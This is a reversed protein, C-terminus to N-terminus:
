RPFPGIRALHHDLSRTRAGPVKAADDWRRLRVASEWGPRHRFRSCEEASMPGGQMSLSHVSSESLLNLYGDDVGCLYRKALVHLAVPASVDVGFCARLVVSGTIEHEDDHDPFSLAADAPTTTSAAGDPLLHGVDHFLAAIVLADDAGDDMALDACQLAHELETVHEDYRMSGAPSRYLDVLAEITTITM